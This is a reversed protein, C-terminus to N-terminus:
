RGRENDLAVDASTEGGLCEGPHRGAVEVRAVQRSGLVRSAVRGVVEGRYIPSSSAVGRADRKMAAIYCGAAPLPHSCAGPRSGCGQRAVLAEEADVDLRENHM